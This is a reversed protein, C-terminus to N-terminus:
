KERVILKLSVFISKSGHSSDTAFWQIFRLWKYKKLYEIAICAAEDVAQGVVEDM